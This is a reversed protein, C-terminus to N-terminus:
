HGRAAWKARGTDVWLYVTRKSVHRATALAQISKYIHGGYQIPRSVGQSRDDHKRRSYGSRMRVPVVNDDRLHERIKGQQAQACYLRFAAEQAATM